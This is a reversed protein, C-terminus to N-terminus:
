SVIDKIAQILKRFRKSPISDEDHAMSNSFTLLSRLGRYLYILTTLRRESDAAHWLKRPVVYWFSFFLGFSWFICWNVPFNVLHGSFVGCPWLIYWQGCLLGFPWLISRCRGNCSEGFNVWIPIKIGDPLGPESGAAHWGHFDRCFVLGRKAV